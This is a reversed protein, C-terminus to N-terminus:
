GKVPFADNWITKSAVTYLSALVTLHSHTLPLLLVRLSAFPLPIPHPIQPPSIPFPPIM